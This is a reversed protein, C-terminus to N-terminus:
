KVISAVLFVLPFVYLLSDIRDLVGGHGPILSGSDKVSLQRKIVSEALDGFTAGIVILIAAALAWYWALHLVLIAWPIVAIIGVIIGAWAGETSKKPSIAPFFRHKGWHSGVLYAATDCIWTGLLVMLIWLLGQDVARLKTVTSVPFGIYIGGAVALAWSYLSGPRNHHGVEYALAALTVLPVGWNVVNLNLPPSDLVFLSILALTVIWSTHQVQIRALKVYEYGALLAAFFVFIWLYYGGLYIFVLVIPILIAAS